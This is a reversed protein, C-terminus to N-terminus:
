CGAYSIDRTDWLSNTMPKPLTTSTSGLDLISLNLLFFYMSNHLHHDCAVATIIFGNGLLAALYMGLFLRGHTQSHWS